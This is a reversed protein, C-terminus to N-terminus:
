PENACLACDLCGGYLHSMQEAVVSDPFGVHESVLHACRPCISSSRSNYIAISAPRRSLCPVLSFKQVRISRSGPNRHAFCKFPKPV